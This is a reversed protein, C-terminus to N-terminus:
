RSNGGFGFTNQEIRRAELLTTNLPNKLSKFTQIASTLNKRTTVVCKYLNADGKMKISNDIIKEVELLSALQEEMLKIASDMYSNANTIKGSDLRVESM